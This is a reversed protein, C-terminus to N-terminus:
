KTHKKNVKRIEDELYENICSISKDGVEIVDFGKIKYYTLKKIEIKM